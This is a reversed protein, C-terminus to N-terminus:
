WSRGYQKPVLEPSAPKSAQVKVDGIHLWEGAFHSDNAFYHLSHLLYRGFSAIFTHHSKGYGTPIRWAHM